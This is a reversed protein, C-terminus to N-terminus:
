DHMGGALGTFFEELSKEIGAIAGNAAIRGNNLILYHTCVTEAEQLIHTSFIVAKNRGLEKILSRMEIIQNPDLGTLPEDLILIPPDHILAQALGTRQRYGRSLTEIRQNKKSSLGCLSIIKEVAGNVSDKPIDRARASFLLTEFVTMDGYLAASEPLYGTNKKFEASNADHEAGNVMIVGSDPLHYGALMRMVTTKGAGNPGLFGLIEGRGVSFSIDDIVNVPGYNKVLNDARIM